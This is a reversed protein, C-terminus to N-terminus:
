HERLHASRRGLETILAAADPYSAALAEPDGLEFGEQEYPPAMTTGVLSWAGASIAGQWVGGAIVVQPREGALLDDGLRHETTTGDPALALLRVPAGAYHHWVEAGPLRHLASADAAGLLFYIASSHGDHFMRRYHGGEHSLPELGLLTILTDATVEGDGDRDGSM